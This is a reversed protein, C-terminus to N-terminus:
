PQTEEADTILYPTLTALAERVASAGGPDFRSERWKRLATEARYVLRETATRRLMAQAEPSDPDKLYYSPGYTSTSRQLRDLRYRDGDVVVTTATIREVTMLNATGPGSAYQVVAVKTGVKLWEPPTITTTM